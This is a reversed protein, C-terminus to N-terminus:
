VSNVSRVKHRVEQLFAEDEMGRASLWKRYIRSMVEIASAGVIGAREVSLAKGMEHDETDYLPFLVAGPAGHTYACSLQYDRTYEEVWEGGVERVLAELSPASFRNLTRKRGAKDRFSFQSLQQDVTQQFTDLQQKLGAIADADNRLRAVCLRGELLRRYEVATFSLFREARLEPDLSIWEMNVGTEWLTRYLASAQEYVTHPLLYYISKFTNLGYAFLKFAVISYLTNEVEFWGVNTKHMQDLLQGSYEIIKTVDCHPKIM